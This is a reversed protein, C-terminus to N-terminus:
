EVAEGFSVMRVAVRVVRVRSAAEATNSLRVGYEALRVLTRLVIAVDQRAVTGSAAVV